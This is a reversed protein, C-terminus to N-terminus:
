RDIQSVIRRSKRLKELQCCFVFCNQLVEKLFQFTSHLASPRTGSRKATGSWRDLTSRMGRFFQHWIMRLAAGTVCLLSGLGSSRISWFAVGRLFDAGQRVDRIFMDRTSRRGSICRELDEEFTGRKCNNKFSSCFGWPKSLHVIGMAQWAFPCRFTSFHETGETKEGKSKSIHKAGCRRASKSM